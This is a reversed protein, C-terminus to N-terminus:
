YHVATGKSFVARGGNETERGGGVRRTAEGEGRGGGKEGGGERGRGGGGWGGGGGRAEGRETLTLLVRVARVARVAGWSGRWSWLFHIVPQIREASIKLWAPPGTAATVSSSPRSAMSTLSKLAGARSTGTSLPNTTFSISIPSILDVLLPLSIASECSDPISAKGPWVPPSAYPCSPSQLM